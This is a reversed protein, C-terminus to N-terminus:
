LHKEIYEKWRDQYTNWFQAVTQKREQLLVPNQVLEEMVQVMEKSNKVVWGLAHNKILEVNGKEQQLVQSTVMVPKNLSFAECIMATGAKGIVVDSENMQKAMDNRYGYVTIWSEQIFKEEFSTRLKENKGCILVVQCHKPLLASATISKMMKKMGVGNAGGAVLFTFEKRKEQHPLQQRFARSIPWGVVKIREEQVGRKLLQQKTEEFPVLYQMPMPAYWLAHVTVPDTIFIAIPISKGQEQLAWYLPRALMSQTAIVFDFDGKALERFVTKYKKYTARQTFWASLPNDSLHYGANWAHRGKTQLHKYAKDLVGAFPDELVVDIGQDFCLESIANGAALHGGGAMTYLVLVRKRM